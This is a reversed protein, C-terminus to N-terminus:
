LFRDLLKRDARPLTTYDDIIFNLNHQDTIMLRTGHLRRIFEEGKLVLETDGRNTQVQWTSPCAFSSVRLLRSIRPMFDAATLAQNILEQQAAPLTSLDDIWHLEHGDSDLLSLGSQPTSIPFARVAKVDSHVTGDDCQLELQGLANRQLNM